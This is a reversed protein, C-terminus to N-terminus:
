EAVWVFGQDRREIKGLGPFPFHVAYIRQGSDAARALLAKRSEQATPADGDFRITWDPQQVSIVSHHMSDAIYLLTQDNSVVEFGTHGVTHGPIDVARVVGPVIEANMEFTTVQPTVAAVIAAIASDAQMATWEASPIHVRAAPFAAAGAADVLGGIHDGHAHSIFVDTVDANQVGAAALSDFFKGAAGTGTDFVMVRDGSRAIMPQVSIHLTETPLNNAVLLADVDAKTMNIALATNDNPPNFEGAKLAAAQLAGIAFAKVDASESFAAIAPAAPAAPTESVPTETEPACAALSAALVLALATAAKM